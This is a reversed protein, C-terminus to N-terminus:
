KNSIVVKKEYVKTNDNLHLVYVGETLSSSNVAMKNDGTSLKVRSRYVTFGMMNTITLEASSDNKSAFTINISTTAPNPFVKLPDTAVSDVQAISEKALALTTAAPQIYPSLRTCPIPMEIAGGPLQWQVSLNDGAMSEKQLAEVYYKRGAVLAIVASKQSPYKTYQRSLTYAPVTAIKKKKAVTSDTSLWLEAQDDGAIWFTYNGTTPATIYGRIRVGYNEGANLPAEFASIKTVSSPNNPYNSNSTLSTISSGPINNFQERTLYASPGCNPAVPMEVKWIKPSSGGYELVYIVNGVMEADIPNNFGGVIRHTQMKYNDTKVDYILQIHLLDQGPDGGYPGLTTSTGTSTWAMVFGHGKFEATLLSDRDFVLGLPSRHSTFTTFALGDGNADKITGSVSDRYKDADPGINIIPETFVRNPRKPYAPDNYFFGNQYATSNHDVLKDTEPNYGPYQMPTNNGGMRWPFGYFRGQRIWNMEEPDDRDGSNETGYLNGNRDFALDFSNRTGDAYLYGMSALRASDNPLILNNSNIPIRFIASTLPEERLGPRLGGSSQVEGHDTRSGSNIFLYNSDPSITLGSFGHDFATNTLGYTETTMVTSWVRDGSPQKVGKMIKGVYGANATKINGILFLANGKFAMGQLLTIGHNAKTAKLTSIYTGQSNRVDYVDGNQNIYMIHRNTPDLGLRSCNPPVNVFKTVKVDARLSTPVSQARATKATFLCLGALGAVAPCLWVFRLKVLM